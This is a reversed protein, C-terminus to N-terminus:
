FLKQVSNDDDTCEYEVRASPFTFVSPLGDKVARSHVFEAIGIRVMVSWVCVYLM